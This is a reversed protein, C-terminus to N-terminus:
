VAKDNYRMFVNYKVEDRLVSPVTYFGMNDLLYNAEEAKQQIDTDQPLVTLCFKLNAKTYEHGCFIKTDAPLTKMVEMAYHM